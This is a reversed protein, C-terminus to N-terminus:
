RVNENPNDKGRYDILNENLFRCYIEPRSAFGFQLYVELTPNVRQTATMLVVGVLKGDKTFVPGGSNGPFTTMDNTFLTAQNLVDDVNNTIGPRFILTKSSVHGYRVTWEYTFPEGISYVEDGIEPTECSVNVPKRDKQEEIELIALDGVPLTAIVKASIQHRMTGNFMVLPTEKRNAVVHLATLIHTPDILVGSGSSNSMTVVVTSQLNETPTRTDPFMQFYVSFLLFIVMMGLALNTLISITGEIIQM